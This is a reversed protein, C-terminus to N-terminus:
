NSAGSKSIESKQANPNTEFKPNRTEFKNVLSPFQFHSVCIPTASKLDSHERQDKKGGTTRYTGVILLRTKRNGRIPGFRLLFADIRAGDVESL